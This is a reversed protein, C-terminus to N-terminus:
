ARGTERQALVDLVAQVVEAPDSMRGLGRDGSAVPGDVPGVFIVGDGRLTAVNRQTAPHSWMTPHMAPVVLVPSRTCLVTATVLDDARGHALRAILDATAPVIVVAAARKGSGCAALAILLWARM